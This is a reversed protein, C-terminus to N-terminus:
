SKSRDVGIYARHWLLDTAYGGDQQSQDEPDPQYRETRAGWCDASM